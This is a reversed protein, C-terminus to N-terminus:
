EGRQGALPADYWADFLNVWQCRVMTMPLADGDHGPKDPGGM